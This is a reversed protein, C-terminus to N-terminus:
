HAFVFDTVNPVVLAEYKFPQQFSRNEQTRALKTRM